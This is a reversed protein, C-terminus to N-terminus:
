KRRVKGTADATFAQGDSKAQRITPNKSKAEAFDMGYKPPVATPFPNPKSLNAPDFNPKTM